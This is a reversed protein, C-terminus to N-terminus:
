SSQLYEGYREQIFPKYAEILDTVNNGWDPVALDTKSPRGRRVVLFVVPRSQSISAYLNNVDDLAIVQPAEM